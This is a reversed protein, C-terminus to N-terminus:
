QASHSPRRRRLCYRILSLRATTAFQRHMPALDGTAARMLAECLWTCVTVVCEEALNSGELRFACLVYGVTVSGSGAKACLADAAAADTRHIRVRSTGRLRTRAHVLAQLLQEVDARLHLAAPEHRRVVPVGIVHHLARLLALRQELLAPRHWERAVGKGRDTDGDASVVEGRGDLNTGWSRRGDGSRQDVAPAGAVQESCSSHLKVTTVSCAVPSVHPRMEDRWDAPVLFICASLMHGTMGLQRHQVLCTSCLCLSLLALININWSSFPFSKLWRSSCTLTCYIM